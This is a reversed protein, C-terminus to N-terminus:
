HYYRSYSASCSYIRTNGVNGFNKSIKQNDNVTEKRVSNKTYLISLIYICIIPLFIALSHRTDPIFYYTDPAGFYSGSGSRTLAVEISTLTGFALLGYWKSFRDLELYGRNIYILIVIYISLILGFYLAIERQHIVQAGLTGMFCLSKHIPYQFLAESFSSYADTSHLGKTVFGLQIFYIYLIIFASSIWVCIKINKHDMNQICLQVLGAFWISLGAAFSFTCLSGAFISALFYPYSNKSMYLFYLTILATLILIPYQVSGANSIFRMMYYPNFAYYLIPILLLLTVRDFDTDAKLLYIIFLISVIYFMYGLYFMIKINLDTFLSTILTIVNPVAPRSDNWQAILIAPDFDGEYYQITWLVIHDWQDWYPIDVAYSEIYYFGYIAPASCIIVILFLYFNTFYSDSLKM